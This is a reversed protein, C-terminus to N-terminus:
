RGGKCLLSEQVHMPVSFDAFSWNTHGRYLVYYSWAWHHAKMTLTNATRAHSCEITSIQVHAPVHVGQSLLSVAELTIFRCTEPYTVENYTIM